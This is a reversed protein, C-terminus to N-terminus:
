SSTLCRCGEEERAVTARACEARREIAQRKATLDRVLKVQEDYRALERKTEAIDSKLNAIEFSRFVHVGVGVIVVVAAAILAWVFIRSWTMAEKSPKEERPLLNIRIMIM